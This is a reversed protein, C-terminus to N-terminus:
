SEIFLDAGNRREEKRGGTGRGATTTITVRERVSTLHDRPNRGTLWWVTVMTAWRPPGDFLPYISGVDRERERRRNSFERRRENVTGSVRRYTIRKMIRARIWSYEYCAIARTALDRYTCITVYCILQNEFWLRTEIVICSPIMWIEDNLTM